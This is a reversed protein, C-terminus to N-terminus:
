LEAAISGIAGYDLLEEELQKRYRSKRRNLVEQEFKTTEPSERLIMPIQQAKKSTPLSKILTDVYMCYGPIYGWESRGAEIEQRLFHINGLVHRQKRSTKFTRVNNLLAM